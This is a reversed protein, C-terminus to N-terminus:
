LDELKIHEEAESNETASMIEEITEPSAGRLEYSKITLERAKEENGINEYAFALRFNYEALSANDLRSTDMSEIYNISEEYMGKEWYASAMIMLISFKENVDDTRSATDNLYALASNLGGDGTNVLNAVEDSTDRMMDYYVQEEPTLQEEQRPLYVNFYYILGATAAAIIIVAAVVGLTIFKNKGKFIKWDRIKKRPKPQNKSFYDVKEKRGINYSDFKADSSKTNHGESEM